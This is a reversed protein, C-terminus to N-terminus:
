GRELVRQAAQLLAAMEADTMDDDSPQPQAPEMSRPAMEDSRLPLDAQQRIHQELDNDPVIVSSGSMKSVFEGLTGLNIKGIKGHTLMPMEEVSVGNLRLLRPIAHRNIIDAISDMWATLATTFLDSKDQSLSYSGVQEHGLLIFDAMITMAIRQDYRGIIGDTDFQRAGGTSLLKLDYLMNGNEDYALPWVVGEQEDRRINTVIEQIATLMTSQGSTADSSLLEPPVFAVPLGALDREIGIGEINEINAKFYWPRYASRLVSRGEPNGKRATTRFLLAKEIPITARNYNPPANQVMAQVGGDEDFIWRDLTDQARISWKRWGIRGDSFFSRQTPDDSEPGGRRKYVLELYAWGYPLMTLIESLTDAWTLSMDHLAGEVFKAAEVDDPADTPAEVQWSVQRMLMEVAFLIAGVVPDQSSMERVVRHWRPGRLERLFEEDVRGSYRRLGTSGLERMIPSAM